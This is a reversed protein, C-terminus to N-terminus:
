ADECAMKKRVLQMEIGIRHKVNPAGQQSQDTKVMSEISGNIGTNLAAINM